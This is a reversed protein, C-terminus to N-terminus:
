GEIIGGEHFELEISAYRNDFRSDNVLWDGLEKKSLSKLKHYEEATVEIIQLHQLETTLLMKLKM